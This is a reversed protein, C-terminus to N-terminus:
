RMGGSAAAADDPPMRYVSALGSAASSSAGGGGAAPGCTQGEDASCPAHCKYEPQAPEASPAVPVCLCADGRLAIAGVGAATGTGACAAACM